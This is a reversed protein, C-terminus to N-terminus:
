QEPAAHEMTKALDLTATAQEGGHMLKANVIQDRVLNRWHAGLWNEADFQTTFAPSVPETVTTGGSKEFSWEWAQTIM